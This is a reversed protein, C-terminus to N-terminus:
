AGHRLPRVGQWATRGPFITATISGGSEKTMDAAWDKISQVLPHSPPVWLSIRLNVAKDQAHAAPAGMGLVALLALAWRTKTM